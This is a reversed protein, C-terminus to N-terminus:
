QLASAPNAKFASSSVQRYGYNPEKWRIIIQIFKGDPIGTSALDVNFVNWYRVFDARGDSDVDASLGQFGTGLASSTVANADSAKDSYQAQYNATAGIGMEWKSTILSDNLTTATVATTLRPDMYDWRSINSALSNALAAGQSISKAQFNSRIAVFQMGALGLFGIIMITCAMMAEIISMGRSPRNAKM